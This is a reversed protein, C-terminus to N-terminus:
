TSACDLCVEGIWIFLTIGCASFFGATKWASLFFALRWLTITKM